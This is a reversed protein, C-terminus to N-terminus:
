EEGWEKREEPTLPEYFEPGVQFRGKYAGFTPKRRTAEVHAPRASPPTRTAVEALAFSGDGLSVARYGGVELEVSEQGQVSPKIAPPSRRRRGQASAFPASRTKLPASYPKKM